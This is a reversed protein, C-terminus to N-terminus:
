GTKGHVRKGGKVRVMMLSLCFSMTMTYYLGPIPVLGGVPEVAVVAPRCRCLELSFFTVIEDWRM